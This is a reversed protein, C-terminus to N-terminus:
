DKWKESANWKKVPLIEKEEEEGHKKEKRELM